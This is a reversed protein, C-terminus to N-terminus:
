SLGRRTNHKQRCWALDVTPLIFPSHNSIMCQIREAASYKSERSLEAFILRLSCSCWFRVDQVEEPRLATAQQFSPKQPEPGTCAASTTEISVQTILTTATHAKSKSQGRELYGQCHKRISEMMDIKKGIM